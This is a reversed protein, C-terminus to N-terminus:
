NLGGSRGEYKDEGEGEAETDKATGSAVGRLYCL